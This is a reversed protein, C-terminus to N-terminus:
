WCPAHTVPIGDAGPPWAVEIWAEPMAPSGSLREPASRYECGNLRGDLHPVEKEGEAVNALRREIPEEHRHTPCRRDGERAHQSESRDIPHHGLGLVVAARDLPLLIDSPKSVNKRADAGFAPATGIQANDPTPGGLGAQVSRTRPVWRMRTGYHRVTSLLPGRRSEIALGERDMGGASGPIAVVM